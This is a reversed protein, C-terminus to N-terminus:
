RGTMRQFGLDMARWLLIADAVDENQPQFGQQRCWAVVAEKAKGPPFRGTGMASKRATSAGVLYIPVSNDFSWLRVMAQLSTLIEAANVSSHHGILAAEVLLATIPELSHMDDLWQRLKAMRIEVGNDGLWFSGHHPRAGLRGMCFGTTTALDLACVNLALPGDIRSMREGQMSRVLSM